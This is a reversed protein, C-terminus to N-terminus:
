KTTLAFNNTEIDETTIELQAPDPTAVASGAALVQASIEPDVSATGLTVQRVYQSVSLGNAAAIAKVQALEDPAMLGTVTKTLASDYRLRPKGGKKSM